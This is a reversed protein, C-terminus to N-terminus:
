QPVQSSRDAASCRRPGTSMGRLTPHQLQARCAHWTCRSSGVCRPINTASTPCSSATAPRIMTGTEKVLDITPCLTPVDVGNRPPRQITTSM